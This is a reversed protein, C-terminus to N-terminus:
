DLGTNVNPKPDVARISRMSTRQGSPFSVSPDAGDSEVMSLMEHGVPDMMGMAKSRAFVFVVFGLTSSAWAWASNPEVRWARRLVLPAKRWHCRAKSISGM